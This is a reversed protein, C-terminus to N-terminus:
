TGLQGEILARVPYILKLVSHADDHVVWAAAVALGAAFAVSSRASLRSALLFGLVCALVDGISNVVSDGRYGLATTAARYHLIVYDTNEFVEWVTALGMAFILRLPMSWGRGVLWLALYLVFGDLVHAFTYWDTLHQSNESSQVVGHWLKIYGCTCWPVRGMALLVIALVAILGAAALIYPWAQIGVQARPSHRAAQQTSGTM